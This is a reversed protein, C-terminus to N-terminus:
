ANDAEVAAVADAFRRYRRYLRAYQDVLDPAPRIERVIRVWEAACAEVSPYWGLAVALFMAAGRPGEEPECLLLPRDLMAAFIELWLRNRAGGGSVRWDSSGLGYEALRDAISRFLAAVGELTARYLEAQGTTESLGIFAARAHSRREPSVQGRLFPLFLVPKGAPGAGPPVARAAEELVAHSVPQEPDLLRALWTPSHGALSADGGCCWRGPLYRYASIGRWPVVPAPNAAISRAVGNTGLTLCVQGVEIAGAGANACTGDHGGIGVPLGAPLGFRQAAASTLYGGIETHPRIVPLREVPFGVEEWVETSWGDPPGSSPDTAVAGTLRYLVFDKVFLPHQLRAFIEPHAERLHLTRSALARFDGFPGYKETIRRAQPASRGDLWHPGIIQGEADVFIGGNGRGSIGIGAVRAPVIQGAAIMAQVLDAALDIWQEPDQEVRDPGLHDTRYPASASALLHGQRDFAAVKLYSLGVDIALITSEM